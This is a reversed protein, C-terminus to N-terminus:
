PFLIMFFWRVARHPWGFGVVKHGDGYGDAAPRVAQIGKGRQGFGPVLDHGQM